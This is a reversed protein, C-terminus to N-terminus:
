KKTWKKANKLQNIKKHADEVNRLTFGLKGWRENSPTSESAEVLRNKIYVNETKQIEFAEYCVIKGTSPETLKTIAHTEDRWIVEHDYSNKKFKTPLTKM